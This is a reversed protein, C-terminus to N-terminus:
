GWKMHCYYFIFLPLLMPWLCSFYIKEAKSNDWKSIIRNYAIPIGVLWIVLIIVIYWM